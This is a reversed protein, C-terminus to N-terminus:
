SGQLRSKLGIAPVSGLQAISKIEVNYLVRDHRIFEIKVRQDNGLNVIEVM